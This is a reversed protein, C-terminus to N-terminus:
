ARVAPGQDIEDAVARCRRFRQSATALFHGFLPVIDARRERLPPIRLRVVNLRFYLDKRFADRAAMEGLDVKSVAVVRFDVARPMNAGLPTVARDELVRVLRTQLALPM